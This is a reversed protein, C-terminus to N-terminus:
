RTNRRAGRGASFGGVGRCGSNSLCTFFLVIDSADPALEGWRSLSVGVMNQLRLTALELPRRGWDGVLPLQSFAYEEEPFVLEGPRLM